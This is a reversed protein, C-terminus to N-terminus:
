GVAPHPCDGAHVRAREHAVDAVGPRHAAPHEFSVDALAICALQDLGLRRHGALVQRALDGGVGDRAVPLAVTRVDRHDVGADLGRHHALQHGAARPHRQMGARAGGLLQQRRLRIGDEQGVPGAIRRGQFVDYRSHALQDAGPGHPADAQAVLQKATPNSVKL